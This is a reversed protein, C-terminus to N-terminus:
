LPRIHAHGFQRYHSHMCPVASGVEDWARESSNLNIYYAEIILPESLQSTDPLLAAKRMDFHRSSVRQWPMPTGSLDAQLQTDSELWSRIYFEQIYSGMDVLLRLLEDTPTHLEVRLRFHQLGPLMAGLVHALEATWHWPRIDCNYSRAGPVLVPRATVQLGSIQELASRLAAPQDAPAVSDHWDLRLRKIDLRWRAFRAAIAPPVGQM